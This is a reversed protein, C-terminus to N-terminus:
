IWCWNDRNSICRILIIASDGFKHLERCELFRNCNCKEAKTVKGGWRRWKMLDISRRGKTSKHQCIKTKKEGGSLQWCEAHLKTFWTLCHIPLFSFVLFHSVFFCLDKMKRMCAVESSKEVFSRGRPTELLSLHLSIFRLFIPVQTM